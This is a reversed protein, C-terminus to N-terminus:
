WIEFVMRVIAGNELTSYRQVESVSVGEPTREAGCGLFPENNSVNYLAIRFNTLNLGLKRKVSSYNANCTENFEEVKKLSLNHPQHALGYREVSGSDEWDEPHGPTKILAETIRHAKSLKINKQSARRLRPLSNAIQFSLYLLVSTFIIFAVLYEISFQGKSKRRSLNNLSGINM